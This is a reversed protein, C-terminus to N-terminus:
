RPDGVGPQYLSRIRQARFIYGANGEIHWLLHDAADYEEVRGATGFSVLARGGDLPQVSGGIDTTVGPISGYSQELRATRTGADLVYREARSEAPNGLNDLLTIEGRKRMRVGHQRVFAPLSTGIFTFENRLGGLRWLVAGTHVDIRTIEGLSRFSVLLNGDPDFDISNGHTWNVNAGARDAAALDTIEFHDFPSWQFLLEGAPGVHQIDTGTVRAAAVGGFATLDMTRTEDCLIWYSGDSELILDHPRPQLGSVCSLTRTINGLPDLELWPEIDGATPTPPRLVYHGTPQAMFNLGTGDPFYRYWVVRGTNDIVLVYKSAAGVAVIVFGPSPDQGGALYSPLDAPLPGTTFTVRDSITIGGIGYALVAFEYDSAPFLGLVPVSATGDTGVVAASVSEFAPTGARLFRVVVSDADRAAVTVVASLVNNPNAAVSVADISPAPSRGTATPRDVACAGLLFLVVVVARTM